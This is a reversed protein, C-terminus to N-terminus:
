AEGTTPGLAPGQPHVPGCVPHVSPAGTKPAGRPTECYRGLATGGASPAPPTSGVISEAWTGLKAELDDRDVHRFVTHRTAACPPHPYFRACSRDGHWLQTGM